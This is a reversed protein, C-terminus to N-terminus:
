INKVICTFDSPTFINVDLETKEKVLRYRLCCSYFLLIIVSLCNIAFFIQFITVGDKVSIFTSSFFVGVSFRVQFPVEITVEKVQCYTDNYNCASKIRPRDGSYFLTKTGDYSKQGSPGTL